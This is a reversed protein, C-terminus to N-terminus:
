VGGIKQFFALLVNNFEIENNLGILENNEEKRIAFDKYDNTNVLILYNNNLKVQNIIIYEKGNELTVTNVDIM